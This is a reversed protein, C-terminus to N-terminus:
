SFPTRRLVLGLVSRADARVVVLWGVVFVLAILVDYVVPFELRTLSLSILTMSGTAAVLRTTLGWWAQRHDRWAKVYLAAAIVTTGIAYGMGIGMVGWSSPIVVWVTAGMIFGFVSALSAFMIGRSSSTSVAGQSPAALSRLMGPVLLLPILGAAEEYADGWVIAVLPRAGIVLVGFICVVLVALMRSSRDLQKELARVDGRGLAEAMSPFLVMSLSNAVMAAPAALTMAAAFQGAEARGAVVVAMIMAFQVFGASALTGLSGWAVFADIERRLPRSISGTASWPWCALTYVLYAVALALLVFIPRVGLLLVILVGAIGVSSTLLDWKVQRSAQGAGFHVGRTFAYGSYGAVLVAIIPAETWSGGTLVWGPVALAALVTVAQLTRLGLFRAVASPDGLDGEGRARAVFRSAAGGTSTPWVLSLINALSMGSSVVALSAPNTLRGVLFSSLFRVVGQLAVGVFALGGRRALRGEPKDLVNVSRFMSASASEDAEM